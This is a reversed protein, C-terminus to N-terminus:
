RKKKKRKQSKIWFRSDPVYATIIAPEEEYSYDIVLHCPIQDEPFTYFLLCRQRNPDDEILKGKIAVTQLKEITDPAIGDKQAEIIAHDSVSYFGRAIQERIRKLNVM